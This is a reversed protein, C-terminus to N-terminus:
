TTCFCYKQSQQVDKESAIKTTTPASAGRLACPLKASGSLNQCRHTNFLNRLLKTCSEFQREKTHTYCRVEQLSIPASANYVRPQLNQSSPRPIYSRELHPM